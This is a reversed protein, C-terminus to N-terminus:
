VGESISGGDTIAGGVGGAMGRTSGGCPGCGCGCGWAGLEADDSIGLCGPVGVSAVEDSSPLIVRLQITKCFKSLLAMLSLCTCVCIRNPLFIFLIPRAYGLRRRRERTEICLVSESAPGACCGIHAM